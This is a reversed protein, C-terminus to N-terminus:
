CSIRSSFKRLPLKVVLNVSVNLNTYSVQLTICLSLREALLLVAKMNYEQVEQCIFLILIRPKTNKAVM